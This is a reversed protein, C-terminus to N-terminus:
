RTVHVRLGHRRTGFEAVIHGPLDDDKLAYLASVAAEGPCHPSTATYLRGARDLAMAETGDTLAALECRPHAALTAHLWAAADRGADIRPSVLINALSRLTRVPYDTHCSLHTDARTGLPARSVEAPRRDLHVAATGTRTVTVLHASSEPAATTRPAEVVPVVIESHPLSLELLDYFLGRLRELSRGPYGTTLEAIDPSGIFASGAMADIHPRYPGHPPLRPAHRGLEWIATETPVDPFQAVLTPQGIAAGYGTVSGNDGILVDAAILGARWGDIEDLMILGSRVCDAYWQAVQGPGHLHTINPHLIAAVAYLDLPLEALLERLLAFRSGLTSDASWTSSVVILTRDGIGLALRYRQRFPLSVLIRDFCPDGAVYASEVAAPASRALRAVDRPHAFVLANAFPRGDRM